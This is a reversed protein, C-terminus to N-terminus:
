RRRVAPPSPHRGRRAPPSPHRGPRAPPPPQRGTRAVWTGPVFLYRRGRHVWRPRHYVYGHRLRVYRGEQWLYQGGDWAWYGGVWVYGPGPSIPVADTLRVPPPEGVVLASGHTYVRAACGLCLSLAISIITRMTDTPADTTGPHSGRM